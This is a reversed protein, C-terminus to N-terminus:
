QIGSAQKILMAARRLGPATVTWGTTSSGTLENQGKFVKSHNTRDYIGFRECASRAAKDGITPTGNILYNSLGLLLYANRVKDKITAGLIEGLIIEAGSDEFHFVDLIQSETLENQRMWLAGKSSIPVTQGVQGSEFAASSDDKANSRLAQQGAVGLKQVAWAVVRAREDAELPELAALVTKMAALERDLEM